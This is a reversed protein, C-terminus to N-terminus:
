MNLPQYSRGTVRSHLGNNVSKHDKPLQAKKKAVEAVKKQGLVKDFIISLM